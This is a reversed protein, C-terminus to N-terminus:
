ADGDVILCRVDKYLEARFSSYLFGTPTLTTVDKFSILYEAKLKKGKHTRLNTRSHTFISILM